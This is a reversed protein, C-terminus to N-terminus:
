ARPNIPITERQEIIVTTRRNVEETGVIIAGHHTSHEELNEMASSLGYGELGQPDTM